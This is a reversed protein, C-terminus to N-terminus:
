EPAIVKAGALRAADAMRDDYTIIAGLDPGLALASAVHLADLARMVAPGLAVAAEAVADDVELVDLSALVARALGTAMPGAKGATRLLEVKGLVNTSFENSGVDDWLARVAASGAEARVLKVLASTDMYYTSM